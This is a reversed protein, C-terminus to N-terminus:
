RGYRHTCVALTGVLRQDRTLIADFSQSSRGAVRDDTADVEGQPPLFMTRDLSTQVCSSAM